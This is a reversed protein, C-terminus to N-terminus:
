RRRLTQTLMLTGKLFSLPFELPLLALQLSLLLLRHRIDLLICLSAIHYTLWALPRRGKRFISSSPSPLGECAICASVASRM